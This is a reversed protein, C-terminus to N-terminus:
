AVRFRRCAPCSRRPSSWPTSAPTRIPPTRRRGPSALTFRNSSAMAAGVNVGLRGVEIPEPIPLADMDARIAVVKGPRGGRLIGVVGTVGVGTRVDDFGPATLREAVLRATRTERFGLEPHRHIDRRTEVLSPAMATAAADVRVRLAAPM